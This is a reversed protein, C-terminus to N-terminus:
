AGGAMEYSAIKWASSWKAGRARVLLFRYRGTNHFGTGRRRFDVDCLIPQVTIQLAGMDAPRIGAPIAPLLLELARREPKPLDAKALLDTWEAGAQANVFTQIYVGLDYRVARELELNGFRRVAIGLDAVALAPDPAVNREDASKLYAELVRTPEPAPWLFIILLIAFIVLPPIVFWKLPLQTASPGEDALQRRRRGMDEHHSAAAKVHQSIADRKAQSLPHDRKFQRPDTGRANQKPPPAPAEGQLLANYQEKTLLGNQVLLMALFRADPPPSKLLAQQYPKCASLEAATTFKRAVAKDGITEALAEAIFATGCAACKVKKGLHAGPVNYHRGCTCRVKAM